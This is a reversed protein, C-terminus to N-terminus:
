GAEFSSYSKPLGAFRETYMEAEPFLTRMWGKALPRIESVMQAFGPMTRSWRSVFWDRLPQPYSWWFPLGCHPELPFWKCPTQVWYHPALRRVEHAFAMQQEREGVHEIVSNSFVVEFSNDAFQEVNLADGEVFEFRHEGAEDRRLYEPRNLVTIELPVDVHRWIDATGGLDIVRAGPQLGMRRVFAEMRRARVPEALVQNKLKYFLQVQWYSLKKM